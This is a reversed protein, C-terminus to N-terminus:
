AAQTREQAQVLGVTMTFEGLELIIPVVLAPVSLTDIEVDQGRIITPPTVDCVLGIESLHLLGNGGIMNALEAIASAALSDFIKVPRGIMTSAIRDATQLSMGIIIHGTVQGTVGITVNVQHSTTGHAQVGLSGRKPTEGLMSELVWFASTIFPNVLEQKM